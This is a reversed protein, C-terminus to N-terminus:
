RKPSGKVVTAVENVNFMTNRVDTFSSVCDQVALNLSHAYCHVYIAVPQLQTIQAALGHHIGSMNSAGDYCQARLDDFSLGFRQFIDKVVALLVDATTSQVEYLGLFYEKPNLQDDVTRICFSLQEKGSIDSTGDIIIAFERYGKIEALM